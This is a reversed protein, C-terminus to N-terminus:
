IYFLNARQFVCNVEERDKRIERVATKKFGEALAGILNENGIWLDCDRIAAALISLNKNILLPIEVNYQKKFIQHEEDFGIFIGQDALGREVLRDYFPNHQPTEIIYRGTRSVIIKRATPSPGYVRLWPLYSAGGSPARGFAWFYNDVLNFTLPNRFQRFIDLDFDIEEDRYIEVSQISEQMELFPRISNYSDESLLPAGNEMVNIDIFLVGGGLSQIFPISWIIDGLKGSHKFRLM